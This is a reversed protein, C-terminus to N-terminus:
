VVDGHGTSLNWFLKVDINRKHGKALIALITRSQQVFHNGSSFISFFVKLPCSLYIFWIFFLKKKSTANQFNWCKLRSLLIDWFSNLGNGQWLFIPFSNCARQMDATATESLHALQPRHAEQKLTYGLYLHICIKGCSKGTFKFFSLM